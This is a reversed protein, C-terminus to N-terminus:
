IYLVLLTHNLRLFACNGMRGSESVVAMNRGKKDTYIYIYIYLSLSLSLSYFHFRGLTLFASNIYRPTHSANEAVLQIFPLPDIWGLRPKYHSVIHKERM